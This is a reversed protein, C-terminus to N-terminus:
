TDRQSDFPVLVRVARAAPTPPQTRLAAVARPVGLQAGVVVGVHVPVPDVGRLPSGLQTGLREEVLAWGLDGCGDAEPLQGVLSLPM